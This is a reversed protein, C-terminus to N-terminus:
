KCWSRWSEGNPYSQALMGFGRARACIRSKGEACKITNSRRYYTKASAVHSPDSVIYNRTVPCAFDSAPLRSRALSGIRVM